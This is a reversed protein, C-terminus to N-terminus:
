GPCTAGATGACLTVGGPGSYATDNVGFSGPWTHDTPSGTGGCFNQGYNWSSGLGCFVRPSSLM